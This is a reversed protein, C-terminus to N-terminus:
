LTSVRFVEETSASGPRVWSHAFNEDGYFSGENMDYSTLERRVQDQWLSYILQYSRM